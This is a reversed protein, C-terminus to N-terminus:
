QFNENKVVKYIVTCQMPLNEYYQRVNQVNLKGAAIIVDQGESPYSGEDGTEYPGASVWTTSDDPSLMWGNEGTWPRAWDPRPVSPEKLLAPVPYVCGTYLCKYFSFRNMVYDSEYDGPSDSPGKM